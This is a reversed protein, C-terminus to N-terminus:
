KENGTGTLNDSFNERFAKPTCRKKKKFLRNFHSYNNFGCPYSIDAVSINTVIVVRCTHALRIDNLSDVFTNGTRQKIFRSFSAESM